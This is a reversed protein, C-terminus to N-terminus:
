SEFPLKCARLPVQGLTLSGCPTAPPGYLAAPLGGKGDPRFYPITTSYNRWGFSADDDSATSITIAVCTGSRCFLARGIVFFRRQFHEATYLLDKRAGRERDFEVVPVDDERVDRPAQAPMVDFNKGAIANVYFDRGVIKRLASDDIAISGALRAAGGSGRV